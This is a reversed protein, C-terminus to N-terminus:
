FLIFNALDPKKKHARAKIAEFDGAWVLIPETVKWPAETNLRSDRVSTNPWSPKEEESVALILSPM